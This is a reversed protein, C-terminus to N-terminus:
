SLRDLEPQMILSATGAYIRPGCVAGQDRLTDVADVYKSFRSINKWADLKDKDRTQNYFPYYDELCIKDNYTRWPTM